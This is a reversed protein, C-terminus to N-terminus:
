NLKGWRVEWNESTSFFCFHLCVLHGMLYGSSGLQLISVLEM